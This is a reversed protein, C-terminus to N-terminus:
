PGSTRRAESHVTTFLASQRHHRWQNGLRHHRWQNGLWALVFTQHRWVVAPHFNWHDRLHPLRRLVQAWLGHSANNVLHGSEENASACLHNRESDIWMSSSTICWSSSTSSPLSQSFRLTSDFLLWVCLRMVCPHYSACQCRSGLTTHSMIMLASLCLFIHRTFTNQECEGDTAASQWWSYVIKSCSMKKKFFILEVLRSEVAVMFLHFYFFVVFALNTNIIFPQNLTMWRWIRPPSPECNHSSNPLRIPTEDTIEAQNKLSIYWNKKDREYEEFSPCYSHNEQALKIWRSASREETWDIKLQSERYLPDRQFCITFEM